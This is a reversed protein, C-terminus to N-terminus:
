MSDQMWHNETLTKQSFLCTLTQGFIHNQLRHRQSKLLSKWLFCREPHWFLARELLWLAIWSNLKIKLNAWVSGLPMELWLNLLIFAVRLVFCVASVTLIECRTKKEGLKKVGLFLVVYLYVDICILALIKKKGWLCTKLKRSTQMIMLLWGTWYIWAIASCDGNEEPQTVWFEITLKKWKGYLPIKGWYKIEQYRNRPVPTNLSLTICCLCTIVMFMEWWFHTMLRICGKLDRQVFCSRGKYPLFNHHIRFIMKHRNKQQTLLKM